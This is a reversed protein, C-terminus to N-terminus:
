QVELLWLVGFVIRLGLGICMLSFPDKLWNNQFFEQIYDLIHLIKRVSSHCVTTFKTGANLEAHNM